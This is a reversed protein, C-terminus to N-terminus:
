RWASSRAHEDLPLLMVFNLLRLFCASRLISSVPLVQKSRRCRRLSRACGRSASSALAFALAVDRIATLEFVEAARPM